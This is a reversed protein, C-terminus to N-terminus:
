LWYVSIFLLLWVVDVFHWYWGVGELAFHNAPTFHGAMSRGLIVTLMVVGLAVHLGHFGTLIYFLSGYVGANLTLGDLTYDNYYEHSQLVLFTLGLTITLFLGFTLVGRRQRSLGWQALTLTVASSLLLLTNVLPIDWPSSLRAAGLFQRNDPNQLLPWQAQFDPWLLINTLPYHEGGLEPVSWLRVFFLAAFFGSFFLVESFILWLMGSRFSLGVTTNYCGALNERIVDSFWGYLIGAIVAIGFFFIIPGSPLDHLWRGAGVFMIFLGAAALLPWRSPEPIYYTTNDPQNM